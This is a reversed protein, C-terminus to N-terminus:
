SGFVYWRLRFAAMSSIETAKPSATAGGDKFTQEGYFTVQPGWMGVFELNDTLEASGGIFGMFSFNTWSDLPSFDTDPSFMALFAGAGFLPTVTGPNTQKEVTLGVRFRTGEFDFQYSQNASAASTSSPTDVSTIDLGVMPELVLSGDGMKIPLSMDPVVGGGSWVLGVGMNQASVVSSSALMLIAVGLLVKKM